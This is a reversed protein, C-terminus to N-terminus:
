HVDGRRAGNWAETVDEAEAPDVVDLQGTGPDLAYEGKLWRGLDVKKCRSSCFPFEPNEARSAAPQRCTPCKSGAAGM